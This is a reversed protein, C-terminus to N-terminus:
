FSLRSAGAKGASNEFEVLVASLQGADGAVPFAAHLAFVGGLGSQRWWNAFADAINMRIPHGSLANGGRDYFTFSVHTATRTNDFADVSLEVGTPTRSARAADVRVPLPGLSVASRLVQFGLDLQITLDGTTSGTQFLIVTQGNVRAVEEGQAVTVTVQRRGNALFQIAADEVGAVKPTFTLTLTGTGTVPSPGALRVEVKAQSGSEMAADLVLQAQPFPPDLAVGELTFTRDDVVLRGTPVGSRVPAFRVDFAATGGAAVVAPLAIGLPGEFPAPSVSITSVTLADPTDNRLVFRRTATKGIEVRDFQVLTGSQLTAGDATEITLGRPSVGRLFYTADNVTLTASYSGFAPPQFRVRFDVNTGPPMVYPKSPDGQVSFGAGSVRLVQLTAAAAGTNRLRFRTDLVDGAAATGADVLGAVPTEIGAGNVTFVAIQAQAAVAALLTVVAARM